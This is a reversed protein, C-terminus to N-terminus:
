EEADMKAGCNPCYRSLINYGHEAKASLEGCISCVAFGHVTAKKGPFDEDIWKGHVVPACNGSLDEIAADREKEAKEARAEAAKIKEILLKIVLYTNDRNKQKEAADILDLLDVNLADAIKQLNAFTPMRKGSEYQYITITACNTKKALEEQTLGAQKRYKKILEAVKM